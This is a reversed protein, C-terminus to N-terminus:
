ATCFSRHDRFIKPGPTHKYCESLDHFHLCASAVSIPCCFHIQMEASREHLIHIVGGLVAGLPCRVIAVFM